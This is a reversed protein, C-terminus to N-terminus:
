MLQPRRFMLDHDASYKPDSSPSIVNIKQM